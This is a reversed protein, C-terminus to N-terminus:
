GGPMFFTTWTQGGNTTKNLIGNVTVYGTNQSIFKFSSVLTNWSYVNM